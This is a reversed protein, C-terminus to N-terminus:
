DNEDYGQIGEIMKIMDKAKYKLVRSIINFNKYMIQPLTNLVWDLM